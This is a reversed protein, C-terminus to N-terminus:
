TGEFNYVMSFWNSNLNRQLISSLWEARFGCFLLTKTLSFASSFSPFSNLFYQCIDSHKMSVSKAIIWTVALLFGPTTFYAANLICLKCLNALISQPPEQCVDNAYRISVPWTWKFTRIGTIRTLQKSLNISSSTLFKFTISSLRPTYEYIHHRFSYVITSIRCHETQSMQIPTVAHLAIYPPHM